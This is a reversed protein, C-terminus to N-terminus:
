APRVLAGGAVERADELGFCTGSAGGVMAGVM